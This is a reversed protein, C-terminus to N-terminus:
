ERSAAVADTMWCDEVDGLSTDTDGSGGGVRVLRFEYRGTVSGNERTVVEVTAADDAIEPVSYQATDYTLMPGYRETEFLEAYQDVSGVAEKNEPSAFARLTRIGDNTEDDNYRLANLQIQVVQLASRECTPSLATNRAAEGTPDGEAVSVTNAGDGDATSGGSGGDTDSTSGSENTSGSADPDTASPDTTGDGGVGAIGDPGGLGATGAAFGAGAAAVLLAAVAVAALVTRPSRRDSPADIATATAEGSPESAAAAPRDQTRSDGASETATRDTRPTATDSGTAGSAFAGTAAADNPVDDNTADSDDAGDDGPVGSDDPEEGDTAEVDTAEVDATGAAPDVAEYAESRVSTGLLRDAIANAEAPPVAYLLRRRLAAPTVLDADLEVGLDGLSDSAVVVADIADPAVADVVDVIDVPDDPADRAAAAVALLETRRDGESVTVRPADVEVDDATAAYTEGVLTAFADSDLSELETAFADLPIPTNATM